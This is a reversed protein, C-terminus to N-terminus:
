SLDAIAQTVIYRSHEGQLQLGGRPGVDDLLSQLRVRAALAKVLHARIENRIIAREKKPVSDPIGREQAVVVSICADEYSRLLEDADNDTM